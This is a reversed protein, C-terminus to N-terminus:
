QPLPEADEPTEVEVHRNPGAITLELSFRAAPLDGLARRLDPPLEARFRADIVLRRLLRDDAGSFLDVTATEVANRVQEASKGELRTANGGALELLDNLAAVVDLSSRVHDTKAGAVEVDEEVLNPDDFWDGIRLEDLGGGDALPAGAGRLENAQDAPLQYTEDGIRVFAADGTSILTTTTERAGARQTVEVEAVPLAGDREPLAFPGDVTFGAVAKSSSIEVDLALDGSKVDGLKDATEALVDTASSGGCGTGSLALLALIAAVARM